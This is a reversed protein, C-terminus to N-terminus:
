TFFDAYRSEYARVELAHFHRWDLWDQGPHDWGSSAGETWPSDISCLRRWAGAADDGFAMGLHHHIAPQRISTRSRGNGHLDGLFAESCIFSLSCSFGFWMSSTGTSAPM